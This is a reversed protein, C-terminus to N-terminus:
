KLSETIQLNIESEAKEKKKIAEDLEKQLREIEKLIGDINKAGKDQIFSQIAEKSVGIYFKEFKKYDTEGNVGWSIEKVQYKEDSYDWDRGYHAETWGDIGYINDSFELNIDYGGSSGYWRSKVKYTDVVKVPIAKTEGDKLIWLTSGKRPNHVNKAAAEVIYNENIKDILNKM